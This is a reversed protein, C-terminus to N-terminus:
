LKAEAGLMADPSGEGDQAAKRESRESLPEPLSLIVFQWYYKECGIPHRSFRRLTASGGTEL